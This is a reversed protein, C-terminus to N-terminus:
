LCIFLNGPYVASIPKVSSLKEVPRIVLSQQASKTTEQGADVESIKVKRVALKHGSSGIISSAQIQQEVERPRKKLPM